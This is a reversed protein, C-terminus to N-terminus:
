WVAPCPAAAPSPPVALAGDIPVGPIAAAPAPPLGAGGVVPIDPLAAPPGPSPPGLMPSRASPLVAQRPEPPRRRASPRQRFDKSDPASRAAASSGPVRMLVGWDPPPRPSRRVPRVRRVWPLLLDRCRSRNPPYVVSRVPLRPPRLDRRATRAGCGHCRRAPHGAARRATDPLGGVVATGPAGPVSAPPIVVGGAGATGPAGPLTAPPVPVSGIASAPPVPGGLTPSAPPSSRPQLAPYVVSLDPPNTIAQQVISICPVGGPSIANDAVALANLLPVTWFVSAIAIATGAAVRTSTRSMLTDGNRHRARFAFSCVHLDNPASAIRPTVSGHGVLATATVPARARGAVVRALGGRGTRRFGRVAVPGRPRRTARAREGGRRGRRCRFGRVDTARHQDRGRRRGAGRRRGDVGRVSSGEVSGMAWVSLHPWAAGIGVGSIALALGLAAIAVPGAGDRIALAALGLGAAMVAPSWRVVRAAVRRDAISASRIEAVTWGVSLAARSLRGRGTAARRSATRIVARVHRGDNGGDASGHHPLDM